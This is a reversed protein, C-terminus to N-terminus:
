RDELPPCSLRPGSPRRYLARDAYERAYPENRRQKRKELQNNHCSTETGWRPSREALALYRQSGPFIPLVLKDIAHMWEGRSASGKDM